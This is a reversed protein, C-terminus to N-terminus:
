ALRIRSDYSRLFLGAIICTHALLVAWHQQFVVLLWTAIISIVSLVIAITFLHKRETLAYAGALVVMAGIVNLVLVGHRFTVLLPSITFVLLICVLLALHRWRYLNTTM